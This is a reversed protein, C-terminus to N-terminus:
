GKLAENLAPPASLVLVVIIVKNIMFQLVEIILVNCHLKQMHLFTQKLFRCSCSLLYAKKKRKKKKKKSQMEVRIGREKEKKSQMELRIGREREKKSQM